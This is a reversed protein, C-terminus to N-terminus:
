KTHANRLEEIQRLLEAIVGNIDQVYEAEIGAPPGGATITLHTTGAYTTLENLAQQTADPFPEWTPAALDYEIYFPHEAIWANVKQVKTNGDDGENVGAVSKKIFIYPKNDGTSCRLETNALNENNETTCIFHSSLFNNQGILWTSSFNFWTHVYDPYKNDWPTNAVKVKTNIGDCLVSIRKREIGWVGDKRMIRDRYDGIGRLPETLTIPATQNGKYPEYSTASDGIEVQISDIDIYQESKGGYAPHIYLCGTTTTVTIKRWEGIEFYKPLAYIRTGDQRTFAFGNGSANVTTKTVYTYYSITYILEPSCSLLITNPSSISGNIHLCERGDFITKNIINSDSNKSLMFDVYNDTDFLNKGAVRVELEQPYEVSPSPRGGTYAEWSLPVSGTNVMPWVVGSTIPANAVGYFGIRLVLNENNILEQTIEKSPVDKTNIEFVVTKEITDYFTFYFYPYTKEGSMYYTDARLIALTQDRTLLIAQSIKETLTGSGSVTFSGDGNNTVTAGGATTGTVKSADFLQKGTSVTGVSIIDQPYDPSPSPAGGTYPEYPTNIKSSETLMIDVDINVPINASGQNFYLTALHDEPVIFTNSVVEAKDQSSKIAVLTESIKPDHVKLDMGSHIGKIKIAYEGPPISYINYNTGTSTTGSISIHGNTTKATIGEHTGESSVYPYPILQAGTTVAQESKGSIKLDHFVAEASDTIIVSKDGTVKKILANGFRASYRVNESKLLSVDSDLQTYNEPITALTDSAKKEIDNKVTIGATNIAQVQSKGESVIKSIGNNTSSVIDKVSNDRADFIKTKWQELIDPYDYAVWANGQETELCQLTDNRKTGWKYTVTGDPLVCKFTLAFKIKGLTTTVNSSILWTFVVTDSDNEKVALDNVEYVGKSEGVSYDIVVKNCFTMDHGEIFHPCEFTIRESNHDFQILDTKKSNNVIERSIPNIIFHPDGDVILSADDHGFYGKEQLIMMNVASYNEKM